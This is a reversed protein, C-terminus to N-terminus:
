QSKKINLFKCIMLVTLVFIFSITTIKCNHMTDDTRVSVHIFSKVPEFTSIPSSSRHLATLPVYKVLIIFKLFILYNILRKSFLLQIIEINATKSTDYNYNM